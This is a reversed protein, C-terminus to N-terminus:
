PTFCRISLPETEVVNSQNGANDVVYISFVVEQYTNPLNQCSQPPNAQRICCVQAFDVYIEGSIGDGVGQQPIPPIQYTTVAGRRTDEIFLNVVGDENSGLDGDGDTFAIAIETSGILQQITDQSFGTFEIQPENDYIPPKSCAWLSFLALFFSARLLTPM